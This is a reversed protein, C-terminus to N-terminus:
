ADAAARRLLESSSRGRGSWFEGVVGEESAAREASAAALTALWELVEAPAQGLLAKLVYRREGARIALELDKACRVLDSRTLIFGTRVPALLHELFEEGPVEAPEPLGPAERLHSPLEDPLTLESRESALARSLLAGWERYPPGAIEDVRWLWIPLWSDLHEWLLAARARHWAARQGATEAETELEGLHAYLALLLALHDPENPPSEGLARWFGAIRDRADGGIKGEAGLYVSAYPFLQEVFLETYQWDEPSAPLELAEAIRGSEPGPPEAFVALSRILESVPV